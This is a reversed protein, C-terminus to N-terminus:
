NFLYNTHITQKKHTSHINSFCSFIQVLNYNRHITSLNDHIRISPSACIICFLKNTCYYHYVRWLSQVKINLVYDNIWQCHDLPLFSIIIHNAFLGICKKIVVGVSPGSELQAQSLLLYRTLKKKEKRKKKEEIM